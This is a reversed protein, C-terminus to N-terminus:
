ALPPPLGSHLTNFQWRSKQHDSSVLSGSASNDSLLCLGEFLTLTGVTAFRSNTNEPLIARAKRILVMGTENEQDADKKVDIKSYILELLFINLRKQPGSTGNATSIGGVINKDTYTSSLPSIAYVIYYILFLCSIFTQKSKKFSTNALVKSIM